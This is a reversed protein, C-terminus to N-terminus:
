ADLPVRLISLDGTGAKVAAQMSRYVLDIAATVAQELKDGRAVYATIAASLTCGTGHFVGPLRPHQFVRTADATVLLDEVLEGSGHGGKLLVAQCGTALLERAVTALDTKATFKRGTLAEAEPLNPTVLLAQPLLEDLLARVTDSAALADGSTAVLVPDVVLPISFEELRKAIKKILSATPLMGTKIVAPPLDGAVADLQQVVLDPAVAQWASVGLTNQATIATIVSTGHVNLAFFAKLDAQIGAGGGSDSGAITLASIFRGNEKNNGSQM